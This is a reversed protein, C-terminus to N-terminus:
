SVAIPRTQASRFRLSRDHGGLSPALIFPIAILLEMACRTNRWREDTHSATILATVATSRRNDNTRLQACYGRGKNPAHTSKPTATAHDINIRGDTTMSASPTVMLFM